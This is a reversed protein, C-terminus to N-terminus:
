VTLLFKIISNLLLNLTCLNECGYCRSRYASYFSSNSRWRSVVGMPTLENLVKNNRRM